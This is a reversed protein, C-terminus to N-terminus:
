KVKIKIKKEHIVYNPVANSNFFFEYVKMHLFEDIFTAAIRAEKDSSLNKRTCYYKEKIRAGNM